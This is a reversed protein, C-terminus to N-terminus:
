ERTWASLVVVPTEDCSVRVLPRCCSVSYPHDPECMHACKYGECTSALYSLQFMVEMSLNGHSRTACPKFSQVGPVRIQCM